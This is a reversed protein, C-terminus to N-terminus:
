PGPSRSASRCSAATAPAAHYCRAAARRAESRNPRAGAGTSALLPAPLAFPRGEHGYVCLRNLLDDGDRCPRLGNEPEQGGGALVDAPLSLDRLELRPRAPREM